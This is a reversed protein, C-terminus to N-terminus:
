PARTGPPQRLTAQHTKTEFLFDALTKAANVALKAHHKAPRYSAAHADSMKNRLASLGNVISTLGSLLQKLPEAIDARSPDLNLLKQVRKYLRVLDGDYTPASPDREKELTILVAELLSRANTIAGDFDNEAIKRDCKIIQEDIFLHTLEASAKYPSEIEVHAGKLDRVKVAHGDIM